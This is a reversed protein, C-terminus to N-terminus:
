HIALSKKSKKQLMNVLNGLSSHDLKKGLIIKKDDLLYITPTMYVDYTSRYNSTRDPDWTNVWKKDLKNKVLFNSISKQDGETAVTYIKVGKSKLSAEYVSDLLPLEHQCHGCNPSYFVVVTYTAKLDMLDLMKGTAVNPMKLAPAVNGNVNPAMKAARDLYKQVEDNSLWFATGKMYYNEVLHVFVDSVGMVQSNEVYRTLYWLTYHFVDKTGAAKKLLM